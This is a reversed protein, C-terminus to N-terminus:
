LFRLKLNTLKLNYDLHHSMAGKSFTFIEELIWIRLLNLGPAWDKSAPFQTQFNSDGQPLYKTKRCRLKRMSSHLYYFDKNWTYIALLISPIFGLPVSQLWYSRFTMKGHIIIMMEVQFYLILKLSILSFCSFILLSFIKLWRNVILQIVRKTSRWPHRHDLESILRLILGSLFWFSTEFFSDCWFRQTM